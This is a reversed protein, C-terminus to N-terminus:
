EFLPMYWKGDREEAKFAYEKTLQEDTNPYTQAREEDVVPMELNLTEPVTKGAVAQGAAWGAIRGMLVSNQFVVAGLQGDKVANLGADTGAYTAILPKFDGGVVSASALAGSKLTNFLGKLDAGYRQKFDETFQASGEPSLKPDVQDEVLDLGSSKAGAKFGEAIERFQDVQPPGLIAAVKAGSGLKEALFEAASQGIGKGDPILNTFYPGGALTYIAIVPIEAAKARELAPQVANSDMPWVVIAKVKQQIMTDIDAIQKNPDLNADTTRVSLGAKEAEAKLGGDLLQLSPDSGQPISFGVTGGADSSATTEGGSSASGETSDDGCAALLLVLLTALVALPAIRTFSTQM